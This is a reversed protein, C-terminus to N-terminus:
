SKIEEIDLYLVGDAYYSSLIGWQQTSSSWVQIPVQQQECAGDIYGAESILEDITTPSFDQSKDVKDRLPMKRETSM